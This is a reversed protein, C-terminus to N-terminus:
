SCYRPTRFSYSLLNCNHKRLLERLLERPIGCLMGRLLGTLLRRMKGSPIGLPIGPLLGRLRGPRRGGLREWLLGPLLERLIERATARVKYARRAAAAITRHISPIQAFATIEPLAKLADAQVTLGALRMWTPINVRILWDACLM